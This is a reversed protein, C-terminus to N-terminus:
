AIKEQAFQRHAFRRYLGMGLLLTDPAGCEVIRGADLSVIQDMTELGTMRHTVLICTRGRMLMDLGQLVLHANEEDLSSTAEDLLLIEPDRLFMRAIAIRQREGGSLLVGREGVPTDLGEPLAAVFTASCSQALAEAVQQEGVPRDIGYLLNDRISGSVMPTSQAVYGIRARWQALPLAAIDQVGYRITGRDPAYFREILGLLTSKGSGSPGILATRTGPAFTLRDIAITAGDSDGGDAYAFRVGEFALIQPLAPVAAAAAARDAADTEPPLDLVEILRASAGRAASLRSVFATLQALPGVVTFIYLLFATLTGSSLTGAAVRMGGYALITVMALTVSLTVIPSLAAEIRASRCGLAFLSAVSAAVGRQERAEAGFTKVMRVEAFIQSLRGSLRATEDQTRTAIRATTLVVPLMALFALAVSGFLIGALGADTAFLVIAAGVLLLAASAAALGERSIVQAVAKTDNVVWSTVAGSSSTDFYAIPARVLREVTAEKLAADLALGARATLFRAIASATASALLVLALMLAPGHWSADAAGARDVISRTLLPFGLTGAVELLTM